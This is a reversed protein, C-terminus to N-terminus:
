IMEENNFKSSEDEYDDEYDDYEQDIYFVVSDDKELVLEGDSYALVEVYGRASCFNMQEVSLNIQDPYAVIIPAVDPNSSTRMILHPQVPLGHKQIYAGQDRPIKDLEYIHVYPHEQVLGDMSVFYMGKELQDPHYEPFILQVNVYKM